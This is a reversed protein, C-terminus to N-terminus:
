RAFVLCGGAYQGSDCVDEPSLMSLFQPSILAVAPLTIHERLAEKAKATPFALNSSGFRQQNIM